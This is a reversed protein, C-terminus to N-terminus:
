RRISEMPISGDNEHCAAWSAFIMGVKYVTLMVSVFNAGTGADRLYSQHCHSKFRARAPQMTQAMVGVSDLSKELLCSYKYFICSPGPPTLTLSSLESHHPIKM